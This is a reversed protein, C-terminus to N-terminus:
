LLLAMTWWDSSSSVCVLCLCMSCRCRALLSLLLFVRAKYVLFTLLVCTVAIWLPPPALVFAPLSSHLFTSVTLTAPKVLVPIFVPSLISAFRRCLQLFPFLSVRTSLFFLALPHEEFYFSSFTKLIVSKLLTSLTQRWLILPDCM